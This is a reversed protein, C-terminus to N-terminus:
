PARGARARVVSVVIWAVVIVAVVWPEVSIDM